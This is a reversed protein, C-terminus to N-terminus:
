PAGADGDRDQLADLRARLYGIREAQEELRASLRAVLDLLPVQAGDGAPASTGAPPLAEATIYWAPGHVSPRKEARFTGDRIRRRVTDVSCGLRRTAEHISVWDDASAAEGM